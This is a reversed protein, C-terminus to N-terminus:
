DLSALWPTVVAAWLAYGQESLHLGDALFLEPPPPAHSELMPGAIDLYDVLDAGDAFDRVLANARQMEPWVQWRQISPKITLYAIRTQPLARHITEVFLQFDALLDEASRGATIDNDGAYVVVARPRYPTVIQHAYLVSDIMQSGGFGRGIVNYAPFDAALTKWGVISSSGVFVIGEPKPPEQRDQDVYAQIPDAWRTYPSTHIHTIQWADDRQVCVLTRRLPNIAVGPPVEPSAGLLEMVVACPGEAAVERSVVWVPEASTQGAHRRRAAAAALERVLLGRANGRADFSTAGDALLPRLAAEDGASRAAEFATSLAVIEAPEQAAVPAALVVVPLAAAVLVSLRQFLYM